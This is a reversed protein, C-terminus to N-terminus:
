KQTMGYTILSVAGFGLLVTTYDFFTVNEHLIAAALILTVLPSMNNFVALTSLTFFKMSILISGRLIFDTFSRFAILKLSGKELDDWMARKLDKNVYLATVISAVISRGM